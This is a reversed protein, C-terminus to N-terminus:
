GITIYKIVNTQTMLLFVFKHQHRDASFNRLARETRPDIRATIRNLDILLERTNSLPLNSFIPKQYNHEGM